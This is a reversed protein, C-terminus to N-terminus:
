QRNKGAASRGNQRLQTAVLAIVACLSFVSIGLAWGASVDSLYHLRLYVRSLGVIVTIALGILVLTGRRVWGPSVRIAVTVALWLYLVANAAHGSPFSSGSAHELPDLPRPRDVLDKIEPNFFVTLLMGAAVVLCETWRRGIALALACVGAIPLVVEYAGLSTVVKAIDTLWAAQLDRSVDLGTTDGPTPGIDDAVTVGYAILVYLGVALAALLTTVELGFAGGPTLRSRVFRAHPQVRRGLALLPRTLARAEMAAVLRARNEPVRLFRVAVVLGVVVVILIGLLFFGRGALDAVENLNRSFAYGIGLHLTSWI